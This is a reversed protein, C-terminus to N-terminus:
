QEFPPSAASYKKKKNKMVWKFGYDLGIKKIYNMFPLLLLLILFKKSNPNRPSNSIAGLKVCM